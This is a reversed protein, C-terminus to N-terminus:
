LYYVSYRFDITDREILRTNEIFFGEEIMNKEFEQIEGAFKLRYPTIVHFKAGNQCYLKAVKPVLKSHSYDFVVDAAIIIDFDTTLIGEHQLNPESVCERWDLKVCKVRDALENTEINRRINDLVVPDKILQFNRYDTMYTIKANLKGCILGALGTGSGIELVKAGNINIEGCDIIKALIIGAGWTQFGIEAETYTTERIIIEGAKTFNFSTSSPGHAIKGCLSSLTKSIKETLEEDSQDDSLPPNSLVSVLWSTGHKKLKELGDEPIYELDNEDEEQYIFRTNSNSTYIKILEILTKLTQKVDNANRRNCSIFDMCLKETEEALHRKM